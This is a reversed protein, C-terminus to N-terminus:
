TKTSELWIVPPRFVCPSLDASGRGGCRGRVVGNELGYHRERAGRACRIQQGREKRWGPGGYDGFGATVIGSRRWVSRVTCLGSPRPLARGIRKAKFKKALEGLGRVVFYGQANLPVTITNAETENPGHFTLLVNGVPPAGSSVVVVRGRVVGQKPEGGFQDFRTARASSVNIQAGGLLVPHEPADAPLGYGVLAIRTTDYFLKQQLREWLAAFRPDGYMSEIMVKVKRSEGPDLKVSSHEMYLRYLYAFAGKIQPIVYIEARQDFPNHLTVEAIGRKAPSSSAAIYRTYNSQASNNSDSVEVINPNVSADIYLPTRVIICKHGDDPPLWNASFEVFPTASEPPVDHTDSGILVEPGGSVTYDKVYFDVRVGTCTM